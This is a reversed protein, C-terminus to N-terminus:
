FNKRRRLKFSKFDGIPNIQVMYEITDGNFEFSVISADRVGLDSQMNQLIRSPIVLNFLNDPASGPEVNAGIGTHFPIQGPLIRLKDLAGDVLCDIGSTLALDGAEIELDYDDTLLLDEGFYWTELIEQTKEPSLNELIRHETIVGTDIQSYSKQSPVRISLGLIDDGRGVLLMGNDNILNQVREPSGYYLTAIIELTMGPKVVIYTFNQSINQNNVLILAVSINALAMQIDLVSNVIQDTALIYESENVENGTFINNYISVPLDVQNIEQQTSISTIPKQPNDLAGMEPTVMNPFYLQNLLEHFQNTKKKLPGGSKAIRKIANKNTIEFQKLDKKMENALNAIDKYLDTVSSLYQLPGSLETLINDFALIANNILAKPDPLAPRRFPAKTSRDEIGILNLSWYWTLPDEKSQSIKLGGKEVFVVEWHADRDYDHFIMVTDEFNFPTNGTAKAKIDAGNPFFLSPTPVRSDANYDDRIEHMLYILDFFDLYGTKKIPNLGELEQLLASGIASAAGSLSGFAGTPKRVPPGEYQQWIEGSLSIDCISNGNDVVQVGGFTPKVSINYNYSHEQRSLGLLFFYEGFSIEIAGPNSLRKQFELSFAGTAEFGGTGRTVSTALSGMNVSSLTFM